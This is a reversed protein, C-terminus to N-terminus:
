EVGNGDRNAGEQGESRTKRETRHAQVPMPGQPRPQQSGVLTAGQTCFHYRTRFSLEQQLVFSFRRRFREVETEEALHRSEIADGAQAESAQHRAIQHSCARRPWGREVRRCLALFSPSTASLLGRCNNEEARGRLRPTKKSPACCERSQLQRLPQRDHPGDAVPQIQRTQLKNKTPLTM